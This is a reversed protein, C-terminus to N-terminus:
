KLLLLLVCAGPSRMLGSRMRATNRAQSRSLSPFSSTLSICSKASDVPKLPLSPDPRSRGPISFGDIKLQFGKSFYRNQVRATEPRNRSPKPPGPAFFYYLIIFVNSRHVIILLLQANSQRANEFLVIFVMSRPADIKYGPLRPVTEPRNTPGLPSFNTYLLVM